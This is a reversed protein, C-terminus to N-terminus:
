YSDIQLPNHMYDESYTYLHNHYGNATVEDVSQMYVPHQAWNDSNEMFCSMPIVESYYSEITVYLSDPFPGESSVEADNPVWFKYVHTEEDMDTADFWDDSYGERDRHHAIGIDAICDSDWLINEKPMVFIGDSDAETRPDLGFPM